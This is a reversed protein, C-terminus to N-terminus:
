QMTIQTMKGPEMKRQLLYIVTATRRRGMSSDLHAAPLPLWM